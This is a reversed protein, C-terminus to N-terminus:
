VHYRIESPKRAPTLPLANWSAGGWMDKNLAQGKTKTWLDVLRFFNYDYRCGLRCAFHIPVGIALWFVNSTAIFACMAVMGNLIFAPLPVGHMMAPRTVAVFLTDEYLGRGAM